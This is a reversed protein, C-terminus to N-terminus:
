SRSITDFGTMLVMKLGNKWYIFFSLATELQSLNFCLPPPFHSVSDPNGIVALLLTNLLSSILSIM